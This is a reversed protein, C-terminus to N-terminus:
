LVQPGTTAAARRRVSRRAIWWAFPGTSLPLWYSCVRYALTALVARGAPVGALILFASMSAEVIGLGGPTIPVLAVIGTVAYALLVLSPRPTAGTARLAFLLSMYDFALRGVSLGVAERWKTGLVTRVENREDRVRQATGHLAPRRPFLRNHVAEVRAAAWCLPADTALVVTSFAGFLVFGVLGVIGTVVLGGNVPAGFAIAPLAFVPLLLLGAVGLLSFTTLGGVAVAPSIGSDELMRFQLAAGAADGGPLILTVANGALQACVVSGWASTRLALRQLAFTCCFHAIEAAIALLLWAPQLTALRPWSALVTVLSPFAFYLAIGAVVVVISRRVISRHSITPGPAASHPEPPSGDTM